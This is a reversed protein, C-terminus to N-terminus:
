SDVSATEEDEDRVLPVNRRLMYRQIAKIDKAHENVTKVIGQFTQYLAGVKAATGGVVILTALNIVGLYVVINKDDPIIQM